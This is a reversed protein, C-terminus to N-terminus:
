GALARRLLAVAKELEGEMVYRIAQTIPRRQGKTM